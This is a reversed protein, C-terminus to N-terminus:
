RSAAGIPRAVAAAGPSSAVGAARAPGTRRPTPGTRPGASRGAPSIVTTGTRLSITVAAAAATGACRRTVFPSSPLVAPGLPIPRLARTSGTPVPLVTARLPVPRLARASRATVPGGAITRLPLVPARCPIARLTGRGRTAVPLLTARLTVAGLAIPRGTVARLPLVTARLTVAGLPGACRAALTGGTVPRLPLVTARCPIARLTGRGRAAVPLVTAGLTVAGLTVPRRAVARLMGAARTALPTVTAGLTVAGLTIARLPLVAPRLTVPGLAGASWATLAAGPLVATRGTVSLTPGGGTRAGVTLVSTRRQRGSGLDRLPHVRPLEVWRDPAGQPAEVRAVGVTYGSV